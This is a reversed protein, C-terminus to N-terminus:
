LLAALLLYVAQGVQVVKELQLETEAQVVLEAVEVLVL